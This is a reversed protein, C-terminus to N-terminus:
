RARAARKAAPKRPQGQTEDNDPIEENDVEVFGHSKLVEVLTPNNTVTAIGDEMEVEVGGHTISSLGEPAQLKM